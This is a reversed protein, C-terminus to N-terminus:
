MILVLPSSATLGEALQNFTDMRFDTDLCLLVALSQVVIISASVFGFHSGGSLRSSEKPLQKLISRFICYCIFFVVHSGQFAVTELHGAKTKM